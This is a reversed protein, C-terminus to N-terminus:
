GKMGFLKILVSIYGRKILFIKIKQKFPVKKLHACKLSKKAKSSSLITKIEMEKKVADLEKSALCETVAYIFQYAFFNDLQYEFSKDKISYLCDYLHMAEDLRKPSYKHIMSQEHQVYYYGANEVFSISKAYFITNFTIAVDEGMKIRNDVKEIGKQLVEKKFVKIVVGPVIGYKIFGSYYLMKPFIEKEMRERTYYGHEFQNLVENSNGDSYVLKLGGVSIDADNKLASQMLSEYMDEAIYDDSDVFGIYKGNANELGTKRAAVLGENLKHIVRVKENKEAYLDCILVSNDVSGDDVLIVEYDAYTQNLISDICKELYKEANYVPVIISLTIM